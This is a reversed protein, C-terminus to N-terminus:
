ERVGYLRVEGSLQVRGTDELEALGGGFFRNVLAIFSGALSTGASELSPCLFVLATGDPGGLNKLRDNAIYVRKQLLLLKLFRFALLCSSRFCRARGVGLRLRSVDACGVSRDAGEPYGENRHLSPLLKARRILIFHQSWLGDSLLRRLSVPCTVGPAAAAIHCM